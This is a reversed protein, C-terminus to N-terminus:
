FTKYKCILYKEMGLNHQGQIVDMLILNEMPVELSLVYKKGPAQIMDLNTVKTLILWDCVKM